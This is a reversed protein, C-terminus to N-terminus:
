MMRIISEIADPKRYLTMGYPIDYLIHPPHTNWKKLNEPTPNLKIKEGNEMIYHHKMYKIRQKKLNSLSRKPLLKVNLNKRRAVQYTFTPNISREDEFFFLNKTTSVGLTINELETYLDDITMVTVYAAYLGGLSQIIVVCGNYPIMAWGHCQSQSTLEGYIIVKDYLLSKDLRTMTQPKEDSLLGLLSDGTAFCIDIYEDIFNLSGFSTITTYDSYYYVYKSIFSILDTFSEWHSKFEKSTRCLSLIDVWNVSDETDAPSMRARQKSHIRLTLLWLLDNHNITSIDALDRLYFDLLMMFDSKSLSSLDEKAFLLKEINM